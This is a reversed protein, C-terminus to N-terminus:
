GRRMSHLFRRYHSRISLCRKEWNTKFRGGLHFECRVFCSVGCIDTIEKHLIDAEDQTVIDWLTITIHDNSESIDFDKYGTETLYQSVSLKTTM